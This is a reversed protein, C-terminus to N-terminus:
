IQISIYFSFLIDSEVIAEQKDFQNKLKDLLLKINHIALITDSWDGLIVALIDWQSDDNVVKKLSSASVFVINKKNLHRNIAM